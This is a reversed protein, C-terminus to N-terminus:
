RRLYDKPKAWRVFGSARSDIRSCPSSEDQLADAAREVHVRTVPDLMETM